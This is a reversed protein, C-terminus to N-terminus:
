PKEKLLNDLLKKYNSNEYVPQLDECTRIADRDQFGHKMAVSVCNVAFRPEQGAAAVRAADFWFAPNVSFDAKPLSNKDGFRPPLNRAPGSTGDGSVKEILYKAGAPADGAYASALIVNRVVEDNILVVMKEAKLYAGWIEKALAGAAPPKKDGTPLATVGLDIACAQNALRGAVGLIIVRFPHFADDAPVTLAADYCARALQAWEPARRPKKDQLAARATALVVFPNDGAKSGRSAFHASKWVPGAIAKQFNAEAEKGQQTITNLFSKLADKSAADAKFKADKLQTQDANQARAVAGLGTLLAEPDSAGDLSAAFGYALGTMLSRTAAADLRQRLEKQNQGLTDYLSVFAEQTTKLPNEYTQLVTLLAMDQRSEADRRLKDWLLRRYTLRSKLEPLPRHVVRGDEILYELAYASFRVADVVPGTYAPAAEAPTESTKEKAPPTEGKKMKEPPRPRSKKDPPMEGKIKKDSLQADGTGTLSLLMGLALMMAAMRRM